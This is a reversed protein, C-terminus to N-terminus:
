DSKFLKELQNLVKFKDRFRSLHLIIGKAIDREEKIIYSDSMNDVTDHVKAELKAVINVWM